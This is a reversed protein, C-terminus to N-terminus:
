AMIEARTVDLAHDLLPTVREIFRTTHPLTAHHEFAAEDKWRSHIYFLQPDKTSRFAHIALCGAEQRSPAVVERLASAVAMAEAARARFRAFIYLEMDAEVSAGRRRATRSAHHAGLISAPAPESANGNRSFSWMAVFRLDREREVPFRSSSFVRDAVNKARRLEFPRKVDM